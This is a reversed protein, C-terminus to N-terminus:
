GPSQYDTYGAAADDKLVMASFAKVYSNQAKVAALESLQLRSNGSIAAQLIFQLPKNHKDVELVKNSLSDKSATSEGSNAPVGNTNATADTGVPAGTINRGGSVSSADGSSPIVPGSPGSASRVGSCSQVILATAALLMVNTLNRM